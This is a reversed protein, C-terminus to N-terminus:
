FKEHPPMGWVGRTPVSRTNSSVGQSNRSVSMNIIRLVWVTGGGNLIGLDPGGRSDVQLHSTNLTAYYRVSGIISVKTYRLGYRLRPVDHGRRQKQRLFTSRKYTIGAVKLAM